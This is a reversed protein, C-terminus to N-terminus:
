PVTRLCYFFSGTQFPPNGIGCYYVTASNLYQTRQAGSSPWDFYCWRGVVCDPNKPLIRVLPTPSPSPPPPTPTPTPPIPTPTATPSPAVTPTPTPPVPTPTPTPPPMTGSLAALLQDIDVGIDKGDSAANKGPSTAQLRWDTLTAPNSGTFLVSAWNPAVKNTTGPFNWLPDAGAVNLAFMNHDQIPNLFGSLFPHGDGLADYYVATYNGADTLNDRIVVGSPTNVPYYSHGGNSAVAGTWVMGTYGSPYGGTATNHRVTLNGGLGSVRFFDGTDVSTPGFLNNEVVIDHGQTSVMTYDTLSLLVGSRYAGFWNNKVSIFATTQWPAGGNQNVTTLGFTSPFSDPPVYNGEFTCHLCAKGEILGKGTNGNTALHYDGFAKPVVLTNRTLSINTPQTGDWVARGPVSPTTYVPVRNGQMNSTILDETLTVDGTATNVTAVRGNAWCINDGQVKCKAPDHINPFEVAIITVGPILGVVNDLRFSHLTPVPSALIHQTTFANGDSGATQMTAYWAEVYNNDGSFGNVNPSIYFGETQQGSGTVFQSDAPDRGYFDWIYSNKVSVRNGDVNFAFKGRTLWQTALTPHEKPHVLCRDFELDSGGNISVMTNTVDNSTMGGLNNTIEIGIFKYGSGTITLVPAGKLTTVLSPMSTGPSVRVGAPPTAGQLTIYNSGTFTGPKNPLLLGTDPISINYIGPQLVITDGRNASNIANALEQTTTVTIVTPQLM